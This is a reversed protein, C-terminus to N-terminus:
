GVTQLTPATDLIDPEAKAPRPIGFSLIRAFAFRTPCRKLHAACRSLRASVKPAAGAGQLLGYWYPDHKPSLM